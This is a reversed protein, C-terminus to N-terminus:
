FIIKRTVCGTSTHVVVIHIGSLGSCDLSVRPLGSRMSAVKTGDASYIELQKVGDPSDITLMCGEKRVQIADQCEVGTVGTHFDMTVSKIRADYKIGKALKSPSSTRFGIYYDSDSNQSPVFSIKKTAYASDPVVPLSGIYELENPNGSHGGFMDLTLTDSEASLFYNITVEVQKGAEVFLRPSVMKDEFGKSTRVMTYNRETRMVNTGDTEQMVEWHGDYSRSNNYPTWESAKEAFDSSYPMAYGKKYPEISLNDVYLGAAAAASPTSCGIGIYYKGDANVEIIGSIRNYWMNEALLGEGSFMEHTLTNENRDTFLAVSMNQRYADTAFNKQTRYMLSFEYKGKPLEICESFAWDTKGTSAPGTHQLFNNPSYSYTSNTVAKWKSDAPMFWSTAKFDTDFNNFYPVTRNSFHTLVDGYAADNRTDDGVKTMIRGILQYTSDSVSINAPVQFTYYATDGPAVTQTDTETAVAEATNNIYYALSINKQPTMGHNIYSMTVQSTTKNYGTQTDFTIDNFCLDEGLDLKVEDVMVQCTGSAKFVLYYIGTDPIEVLKYANFVGTTAPAQEFIKVADGGPLPTKSIYAAVRATASTRIPGWYFSVRKNGAPVKIAPSVLYDESKVNSNNVYVACNGFGSVNTSTWGQNDGDKDIVYWQDLDTEFDSMYPFTKSDYFYIKKDITDNVAVNDSTHSCFVKLITSDSSALLKTGFTYSIESKAKLVGPYTETVKQSGACFGLEPSDMDFPTPNSFTATVTYGNPDRALRSISPSVIMGAEMDPVADAFGEPAFVLQGYDYALMNATITIVAPGKPVFSFQWSKLTSGVMAQITDIVIEEKELPGYEAVAKLKVAKNAHIKAKFTVKKDNPFPIVNTTIGGRWNTSKGSVVFAGLTANWIWTGSSKIKDNVNDADIPLPYGDLRPMVVYTTLTDSFEVGDSDVSGVITTVTDRHEYTLTLTAPISVNVNVKPPLVKSITGSYKQNGNLLIKLAVTETTDTGINRLTIDVPQETQASGKPSNLVWAKVKVKQAATPLASILTVALVFLLLKWKKTQM